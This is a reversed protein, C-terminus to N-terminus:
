LSNTVAAMTKIKNASDVAFGQGQFVYKSMFNYLKLVKKTPTYGIWSM